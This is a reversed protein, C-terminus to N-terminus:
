PVRSAIKKEFGTLVTEKGFTNSAYSRISPQSNRWANENLSDLIASVLGNLDEPPCLRGFGPNETLLRGLETGQSATVISYGGIAMINTLKSPMVLDAAGAKQIVLHLDAASLLSPLEEVAQLPLFRINNLQKELAHRELDAKAVGEGCLVFHIDQRERLREAAGIVLELGQKRAMNGSYLLVTQADPVLWQQRYRKRGEADFRIFELDAWNPFLFLRDSAVGKQELRKLMSVSITSVADFRRMLGTEMFGIVRGLWAFPLIGLAFAIDIELDQIHLICRAGCLRAILWAAPACFFPPEISLVVDPRWFLQRLMVPFSSLAFSALYLLRKLGSPRIPIYLPCRWVQVGAITEKKYRFASYGPHVKWGPYSPPATVVRVEHGHEALWAAMEQTYKGIGTLEPAYNISCILIKM